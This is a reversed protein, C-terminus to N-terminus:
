LCVGESDRIVALVENFPMSTAWMSGDVFAITAGHAGDDVIHTVTDPNVAIRTASPKAPLVPWNRTTGM